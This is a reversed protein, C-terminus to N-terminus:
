YTLWIQNKPSYYIMLQCASDWCGKIKSSGLGGRGGKEKKWTQKAVLGDLCPPPGSQKQQCPKAIPGVLAWGSAEQKLDRFNQFGPMHNMLHWGEKKKLGPQFQGLLSHQSALSGSSVASNGSDAANPYQDHVM